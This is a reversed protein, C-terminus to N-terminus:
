SHWECIKRFALLLNRAIGATLGALALALALVQAWIPAVAVTTVVVVEVWEVTVV